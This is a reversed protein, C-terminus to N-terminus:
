KGASGVLVLRSSPNSADGMPADVVAKQKTETQNAWTKNHTGIQFQRNRLVSAFPTM